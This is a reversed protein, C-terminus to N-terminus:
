ITQVLGSRLVAKKHKPNIERNLHLSLLNNSCNAYCVLTTCQSLLSYPPLLPCLCTSLWLFINHSYPINTNPDNEQLIQTKIVHLIFRCYIHWKFHLVLLVKRFVTISLFYLLYHLILWWRGRFACIFWFIWVVSFIYAFSFAQNVLQSWLAHKKFLEESLAKVVDSNAM